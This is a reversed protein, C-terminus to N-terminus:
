FSYVEGDLNYAVAFIEKCADKSLTTYKKNYIDYEMGKKDTLNFILKNRPDIVFKKGDDANYEIFSHRKTSIWTTNIGSLQAMAKTFITQPLCTGTAKPLGKSGSAFEGINIIRGPLHEQKFNSYAKDENNINIRNEENQFSYVTDNKIYPKTIKDPKFFESETELLAKAVEISKNKNIKNLKQNLKKSAEVLVHDDELNVQIKIKTEKNLLAIKNIQLFGNNDYGMLSYIFGKEFNDEIRSTTKKGKYTDFEQQTFDAMQALTKQPLKVTDVQKTLEVKLDETMNLKNLLELEMENILPVFLRNHILKQAKGMLSNAKSICGLGKAALRNKLENNEEQIAADLYNSAKTYTDDLENYLAKLKYKPNINKNSLIEQMNINKEIIETSLKKIAPSTYHNIGNM